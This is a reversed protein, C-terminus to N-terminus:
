KRIGDRLCIGVVATTLTPILSNLNIEGTFYAGLSTVISLIAAWFTKTKLLEIM